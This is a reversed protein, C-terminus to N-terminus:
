FRSTTRRRAQIFLHQAFNLSVVAVTQACREIRGVLFLARAIGRNVRQLFFNDLRIRFILRLFPLHRFLDEIMQFLRDEAVINEVFTATRITAPEGFNTRDAAFNTPQRANVTRRKESATLRLRQDRRRESGLFVLLEHVVELLAFDLSAEQEM